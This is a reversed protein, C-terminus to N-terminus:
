CLSYETLQHESLRPELSELAQTSEVSTELLATEIYKSNCRKQFRWINVVLCPQM